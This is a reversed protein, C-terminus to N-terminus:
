INKKIDIITNLDYIFIRPNFKLVFINNPYNDPLWTDLKHLSTPLIENYKPFCLKINKKLTSISIVNSNKYNIMKLIENLFKKPMIYDKNKNEYKKKIDILFKNYENKNKIEIKKSESNLEKEISEEIIDKISIFKNCYYKLYSSSSHSTICIIEKGEEQIMSCAYSFDVDASALCFIDIYPNKYLFQIMDCIIKIDTSQKNNIRSCQIPMYGSINLNKKWNKSMENSSWDGYIRKIILNGYSKIEKTIAFLHNPNTNDGDIFVAIKKKPVKEM